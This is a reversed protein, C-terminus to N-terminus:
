SHAENKGRKSLYEMRLYGYKVPENLFHSPLEMELKHQIFENVQYFLEGRKVTQVYAVRRGYKMKRSPFISAFVSNREAQENIKRNQELRTKQYIRQRETPPMFDKDMYGLQIIRKYSENYEILRHALNSQYEDDKEAYEFAREMLVGSYNSYINNICYKFFLDKDKIYAAVCFVLDALKKENITFLLIGDLLSLLEQKKLERTDFLFVMDEVRLIENFIEVSLFFESTKGYLFKNCWFYLLSKKERNLASCTQPLLGLFQEDLKYKNMEFIKYLNSIAMSSDEEIKREFYYDLAHLIQTDKEYSVSIIEELVDECPQSDKVCFELAQICKRKLILKENKLRSLREKVRERYLVNKGSLYQVYVPILSEWLVENNCFTTETFEFYKEFSECGYFTSRYLFDIGMLKCHESEENLYIDLWKEAREYQNRYLEIEIKGILSELAKTYTSIYRKLIATEKKKSVVLAAYGNIFLNKDVEENTKEIVDLIEDIKDILCNQEYEICAGVFRLIQNHVGKQYSEVLLELLSVGCESQLIFGIYESLLNHEKVTLLFEIVDNNRFSKLEKMKVRTMVGWRAHIMEKTGDDLEDFIQDTSMTLLAPNESILRDAMNFMEKIDNLDHIM